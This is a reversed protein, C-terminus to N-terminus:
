ANIKRNIPILIHSETISRMNYRDKKKKTVNTHKINMDHGNSKSRKQKTKNQITQKNKNKFQYQTKLTM